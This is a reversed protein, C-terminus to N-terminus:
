FPRQQGFELTVFGSHSSRLIYSAPLLDVFQYSGDDNSLTTRNFGGTAPMLIVVARPLPRGDADLIHGRIVATAPPAKPAGTGPPMQQLLSAVVIAGVIATM